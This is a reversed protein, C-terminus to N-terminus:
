REVDKVVSAMFSLIAENHEIKMIFQTENDNDKTIKSCAKIFKEFLERKKNFEQISKFKSDYDDAM